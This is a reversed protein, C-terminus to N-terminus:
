EGYRIVEFREMSYNEKPSIGAKRLAISVQEEPTDVGELNPLLLGTRFGARVIVGYKKVDLDEISDIPEPELLVDVSYSLSDLEDERVANFRPDRTGSSIANSIIELAINEKTPLITGICGRLEGNKKISVFTGAKNKLMEDPLDNPVGIIEGTIVYTELAKKALSVYPNKDYIETKEATKEKIVNIKSVMYGVGYPGEYSFFEPETEYRDLAGLMIVISALGCEGAEERFDDDISLIEKINKEKICDVILNDFKEGYESYGYPGDHTLRHSLDSSAVIVVNEDSNKVAESICTGFKYLKELPYNTISMHVLKFDKYEKDIYYLPVIAGHDLKNLDWFGRFLGPEIGGASIGHKKSISIIKEVLDLNNEYALSVDKARFKELNGKLVKADSIYIYEQFLPAHPTIVIITSPKKGAISKAAKKAAEVTRIVRAEAGQGVEPVILPPHPFIYSGIIKGM